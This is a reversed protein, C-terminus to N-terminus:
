RDHWAEIQEWVANVESQLDEITGNNYIIFDYPLDYNESEHSDTLGTERVVKIIYSDNLEARIGEVEQPFRVDPIIAISEGMLRTEIRAKDIWLSKTNATPIRECLGKKIYDTGFDQMFQRPTIGILKDVEDKNIDNIKHGFMASAVKYIPDALRVIKCCVKDQLMLRITDKGCRKKGTIGIILKREEYIIKDRQTFISSEVRAGKSETWGEILYLIDCSYMEPASQLMFYDWVKQTDKKIWEDFFAKHVPNDILRAPNYVDYGKSLIYKEAKMFKDYYGVLDSSIAGGIYVRKM